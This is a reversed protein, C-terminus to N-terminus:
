ENNNRWDLAQGCNSCYNDYSNPEHNYCNDCTPKQSPAHTVLKMPENRQLAQKITQLKEIIQSISIGDEHEDKILEYMVENLAEIEKNM